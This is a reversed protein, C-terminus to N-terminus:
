EEAMIPMGRPSGIRRPKRPFSMEAALQEAITVAERGSPGGTRLGPLLPEVLAWARDAEAHWFRRETDGTEPLDACRRALWILNLLERARHEPSHSSCYM